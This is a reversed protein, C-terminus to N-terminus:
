AGYVELTSYFANIDETMDEESPLQIRDSLIGAMWKSQFEPQHRDFCIQHKGKPLGVFSLRPALAPPFVHKYLPGVRNEHVTVIGNTDLIPFHFKYGTTFFSTPLSSVKMTSFSVEMEASAKLAVHVERAVGAIDRCIDISSASSGRLVPIDAVRPETYHGVCVVVADFIEDVEDGSRKKSRVKWKNFNDSSKVMGVYVVETEFRVLKEVGFEKMFEKLHMLVERHGPFRRPDRDKDDERAVFPFDRFGM